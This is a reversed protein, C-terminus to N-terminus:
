AEFSYGVERLARSPETGRRLADVLWGLARIRSRFVVRKLFGSDLSLEYASLAENLFARGGLLLLFAFDIAPDGLAAGSWDIIGRLRGTEADVIIHEGHLDNHIFREPGSYSPPVEPRGSLWEFALPVLKPFDAVEPVQRMLGLMAQDCEDKTAGVGIDRAARAPISHVATLARGLDSPLLANRPAEAEDAGVGPLYAHGVFRHPFAESGDVMYRIRPIQLADGVHEHVLAHVRLDYELNHAVDAYRPFRFVFAEDVVYVDHEWGSGLYRVSEFHLDPLQTRLARRVLEHDLHRDSAPPNMRDFPSAADM